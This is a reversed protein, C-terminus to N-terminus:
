RGIRVTAGRAPARERERACAEHQVALLARYNTRVLYEASAVGANWMRWSVGGAERRALERSSPGWNRLLMRAAQCRDHAQELSASSDAAGTPSSVVASVALPVAEGSLTALHTLDLTPEGVGTQGQVRAVNVRAVLVDPVALNLLALIVLAATVAGAVFSRGRGRLVTLALWALVIALWGMFVLPYFRELTLGYYHAYLQMRLMASAIMVALLALLPVALMTHRRELQRGPRLM